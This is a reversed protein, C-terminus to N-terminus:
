QRSLLAVGQAVSGLTARLGKGIGLLMDGDGHDVQLDKLEQMADHVDSFIDLATFPELKNSSHTLLRGDCGYIQTTQFYPLESITDELVPM